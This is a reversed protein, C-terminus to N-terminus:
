PFRKPDFGFTKCVRASIRQFEAGHTAWNQSGQQKLLLHIMEHAVSETLTHLHGNCTVSVRITHRPKPWYDAFKTSTRIVRFIVEEAPPLQGFPRFHRLYTYTASIRAPTLQLSM